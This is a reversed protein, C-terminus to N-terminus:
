VLPLVIVEGNGIVGGGDEAEISPPLDSDGVLCIGSNLPKPEPLIDLDLVGEVCLGAGIDSAEVEVDFGEGLAVLRAREPVSEHCCRGLELPAPLLGRDITDVSLLVWALFVGASSTSGDRSWIAADKPDRSGDQNLCVASRPTPFAAYLFLSSLAVDAPLKVDPRLPRGPMDLPGEVSVAFSSRGAGDSLTIDSGEDRGLEMRSLAIELLLNEVVCM